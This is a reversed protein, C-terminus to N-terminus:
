HHSEWATEEGAIDSLVNGLALGYESTHYGWAPGLDEDVVPRTDGARAISTVELWSAGGGQECKASYLEPYNVWATKVSAKVHPQTATLFYPDLTGTGGAIAAPDVCAIQEGAKSTQGSQLSVGQGPRGFLSDPPPESPYSSFAIACRTESSSTCLPVKTFTAGVTKGSPVQLNGGVVIAVLLRALVAPQHDLEASILHILIASGQSDGILIIPLGNDDHAIFSNWDALVSDYAVTFTSRLLSEDGALGKAISDDTQSRYSPAWVKCVQSLPAAQEVAVVLEAKTVVAPTNTTSATSITPYVYFCDFKSAQASSPMAVPHLSGNAHMSTATLSYDCPNAAAGPRCLWVVSSAAGPATTTTPTTSTPSTTAPSSGSSCSAALLGAVLTLALARSATRGKRGAFVYLGM